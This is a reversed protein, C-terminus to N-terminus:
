LEIDSDHGLSLAILQIKSIFEGLSVYCNRLEKPFQYLDAEKVFKILESRCTISAKLLRDFTFARHKAAKKMDESIKQKDKQNTPNSDERLFGNLYSDWTRKHNSM